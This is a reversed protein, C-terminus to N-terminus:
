RPAAIVAAKAAAADAFAPAAVPPVTSFRMAVIGPQGGPLLPAVLATGRNGATMTKGAQGVQSLSVTVVSNAPLNTRAALTFVKTENAGLALALEEHWLITPIPMARSMFSVPASASLTACIAVEAPQDLTNVARLEFAPQEGAKFERGQASALTMEIGNVTLKPKAITAALPNADNGSVLPSAHFAVTLTATVLSATAIILLDKTKM